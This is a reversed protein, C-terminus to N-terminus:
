FLQEVCSEREREILDLTTHLQTLNCYTLLKNECDGDLCTCNLCVSIFWQPIWWFFVKADDQSSILLETETETDPTGM